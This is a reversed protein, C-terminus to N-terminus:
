NYSESTEDGKLLDDVTVNFYDAVAKVKTISPINVDWKCISGRSFDMKIELESVSINNKKCLNRIQNYM